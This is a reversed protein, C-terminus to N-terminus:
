YRVDIISILVLSLYKILDKGSFLFYPAFGNSLHERDFVPSKTSQFHQNFFQCCLYQQEGYQPTTSRATANDACYRHQWKKILVKLGDLSWNKTPFLQFLRKAGYKKNERLSKILYKDETSIEM